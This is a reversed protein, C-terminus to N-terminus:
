HFNFERSGSNTYVDLTAMQGCENGDFSVSSSDGIRLLRIDVRQNCADNEIRKNLVIRNISIEKNSLSVLDCVHIEAPEYRKCNIKLENSLSNSIANSLRRLYSEVINEKTKEM